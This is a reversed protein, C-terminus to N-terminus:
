FRVVVLSGDRGADQAFRGLQEDATGFEVHKEGGAFEPAFWVMDRLWLAASLHVADPGRIPYREVLTPVASLTRVDLALANLFLVFEGVFVERVRNFQPVTLDRQRLKRALAAHVEAYSLMSTFVREGDVFRANVADSGPEVLYRKVLASADLYLM